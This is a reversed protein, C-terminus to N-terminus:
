AAFGVGLSLGLLFCIAGAIALIVCGVLAEGRGASM